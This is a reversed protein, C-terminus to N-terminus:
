RERSAASARKGQVDANDSAPERGTKRWAQVAISAGYGIQCAIGAIFVDAILSGTLWSGSAFIAFAALAAATMAAFGVVSLAVGFVLGLAFFGLVLLM